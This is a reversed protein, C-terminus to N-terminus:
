EIRKEIGLEINEKPLATIYDSLIANLLEKQNVNKSIQHILLNSYTEIQRELESIEKLLKSIKNELDRSNLNQNEIQTLRSEIDKREKDLNGFSQKLFDIGEYSKIKAIKEKLNNINTQKQSITVELGGVLKTFKSQNPTLEENLKVRHNEREKRQQVVKSNLEINVSSYLGEFAFVMESLIQNKAKYQNVLEKFDSFSKQISRIIKIDRNHKLLTQIDKQNKKSFEVQENEKNDAIILSEKLTKNDILKSNILYRYIKSFNNTIERQDQSAGENLWVVGNNKKGKQYVFNFLDRRNSYKSYEIGTSSLDALLTDFKKLKQGESTQVFYQEEKYDSDIKYYDLSGEANKKVLICYYRKKFIEFVIYSSNISPFYHNFTTKDGTRNGSFTMQKGDIIYLFNLAYILTSKGINNPGVIQMSDCDSLEIDAKSYIDSNLIALRKLM